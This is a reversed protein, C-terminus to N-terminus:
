LQLVFHQTNGLSLSLVDLEEVFVDVVRVPNDEAIFDDLREPFLTSQGRAEGVVFRKMGVGREPGM